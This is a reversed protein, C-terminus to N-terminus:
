GKRGGGENRKRDERGEKVKREEKRGEKRGDGEKRGVVEGRGEKRGEKLDIEKRGVKSLRSRRRGDM